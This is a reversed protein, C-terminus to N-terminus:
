FTTDTNFGFETMLTMLMFTNILRNLFYFVYAKRKVSLQRKIANSIYVHYIKPLM